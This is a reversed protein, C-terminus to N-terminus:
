LSLTERRLAGRWTSRQELGVGSSWHPTTCKTTSVRSSSGCVARILIKIERPPEVLNDLLAACSGCGLITRLRRAALGALRIPALLHLLHLEAGSEVAQRHPICDVTAQHHPLGGRQELVLELHRSTQKQNAGLLAQPPRFAQLQDDWAVSRRKWLVITKACFECNWNWVISSKSWWLLKYLVKRRGGEVQGEEEFHRRVFLIFAWRLTFFAQVLLVLGIGVVLGSIFSVWDWHSGGAISNCLTLYDPQPKELLSLLHHAVALSSGVSVGGAVARMFKVWLLQVPRKLVDSAYICKIDLFLYHEVEM